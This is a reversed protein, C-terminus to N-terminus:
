PLGSRRPFTSHSPPRTQHFPYSRHLPTIGSSLLRDLNYVRDPRLDVLASLRSNSDECDRVMRDARGVLHHLVEVVGLNTPLSLGARRSLRCRTSVWRPACHSSQRSSNRKHDTDMRSGQSQRRSPRTARCSLAPRGALCSRRRRRVPSSASQSPNAVASPPLTTNRYTTTATRPKPHPTSGVKTRPSAGRRNPPRPSNTRLRSSRTQTRPHNMTFFGECLNRRQGPRRLVWTPSQKEGNAVAMRHLCTRLQTEGLEGHEAKRDVLM